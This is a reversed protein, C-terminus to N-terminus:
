LPGPGYAYGDLAETGVPWPAARPDLDPLFITAWNADYPRNEITLVWLGTSPTDVIGTTAKINDLYAQEVPTFEFTRAFDEITRDGGIPGISGEAVIAEPNLYSRKALQEAIMVARRPAAVPVMETGDAAVGIWDPRGAAEAVLVSAAQICYDGYAPNDLPQEDALLELTSAILLPTMAGAYPLV